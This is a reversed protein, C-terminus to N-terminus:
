SINTLESILLWGTLQESVQVEVQGGGIDRSLLVVETLPNLGELTITGDEAPIRLLANSRAQATIVRGASTPRTTVTPTPTPSTTPISGSTNATPEPTASIAKTSLATIAQATATEAQSLAAQQGNQSLMVLLAAIAFLGLAIAFVAPIQPRARAVGGRPTENERPPPHAIEDALEADVPQAPITPQEQTVGKGRQRLTYQELRAYFEEGPLMDGRVDEYQTRVFLEWNPTNTDGALWLPFVPKEYKEALTIERQVWRSGDSEPTMIIVFAGCSRLALVISKWWDEGTALRRKDIWVEFGEARLKDALRHAYDANKKSYSIFIYSM